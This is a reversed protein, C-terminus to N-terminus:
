GYSSSRGGWFNQLKELWSGPPAGVLLKMLLERLQDGDLNQHFKGQCAVSIKGTEESVVLAVADTDEALGLAARHRTGVSAALDTRQTLPFICAAALVRDNRVIVGGDHLPSNSFFIQDLLEHSLRADLLAGGEAATRLGVEREVAILAGVRRSSFGLASRVLADVVAREQSTFFFIPQAGVEALARRLEPQFIVVLAVVIFTLFHGLLWGIVEMHFLQSILTLLLLLSVLGILVRAGRTGRIFRLVFYIVIALVLIEFAERWHHVSFEM